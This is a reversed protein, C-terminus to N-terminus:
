QDINFIFIMIIIVYRKDFYNLCNELLFTSAHGDIMACEIFEGCQARRNMQWLQQSQLINITKLQLSSIKTFRGSM